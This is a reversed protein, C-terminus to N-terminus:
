FEFNKLSELTKSVATAKTNVVVGYCILSRGYQESDRVKGVALVEAGLPISVMDEVYRQGEEGYPTMLALGSGIDTNLVVRAGGSQTGQAMHVTGKVIIYGKVDTDLAGEVDMAMDSDKAAALFADYLEAGALKRTMRPAPEAYVTMYNSGEKVKGFVDYVGGVDLNVDGFAIGLVGNCIVIYDAQMRIPFPKGQNRNKMTGAKDIFARNDLALVYRGNKAKKANPTGEKVEKVMGKALALEPDNNYTGLAVNRSIENSDKKGTAAVVTVTFKDSKLEKVREKVKIAITASKDATSEGAMQESIFSVLKAISAKAEEEPVGAEVLQKVYAAENITAEKKAM